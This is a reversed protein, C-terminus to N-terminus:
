LTKQTLTGSGMLARALNKYQERKPLCMDGCDGRPATDDADDIGFFCLIFVHSIIDTEILRKLKPQFHSTTSCTKQEESLSHPAVINLRGSTIHESRWMSGVKVIIFLSTLWKGAM